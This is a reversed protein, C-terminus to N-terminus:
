NTLVYFKSLETQMCQVLISSTILICIVYNETTRSVYSSM